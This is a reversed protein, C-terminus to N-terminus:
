TGSGEALGELALRLRTWQQGVGAEIAGLSLGIRCEGSALQSTASVGLDPRGIGDRLVALQAPDQFDAASVEIAMVTEGELSQLQHRLGAALLDTHLERDGFIRELGDRALLGALEELGQLRARFEGLARDIGAELAALRDAERDAAERAGRARGAAEGENFAQDVMQASQLRGAELKLSLREIEARLSLAEDVAPEVPPQTSRGVPAPRIDQLDDGGSKLLISM